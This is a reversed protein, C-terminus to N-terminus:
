GPTEGEPNSEVVGLGPEPAEAEALAEIEARLALQLASVVDRATYGEGKATEMIDRMELAILEQLEEFLRSDDRIAEDEM